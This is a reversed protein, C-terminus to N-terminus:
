ESCMAGDEFKATVYIVLAEGKITGLADDRTRCHILSARYGQEWAGWHNARPLSPVLGLSSARRDLM